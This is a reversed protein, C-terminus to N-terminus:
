ILFVVILTRSTHCAPTPFCWCQNKQIRINSNPYIPTSPKKCNRKSQNINTIYGNYITKPLGCLSLSRRLTTTSLLSNFTSAFSPSQHQHLLDSTSVYVVRRISSEIVVFFSPFTQRPIGEYVGRTDTVHQFTIHDCLPICSRRIHNIDLGSSKICNERSHALVTYTYVLIWHMESGVHVQGSRLISELRGGSLHLYWPM